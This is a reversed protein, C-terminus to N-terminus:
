TVANRQQFEEAQWEGSDLIQALHSAAEAMDAFSLYAPAFGLRLIDAERFDGIVGRQILAQSLAYANSHRFSLQSGRM